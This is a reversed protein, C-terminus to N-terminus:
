LTHFDSSSAEQHHKFFLSDIDTAEEFYVAEALHCHLLAEDFDNFQRLTNFETFSCGHHQQVETAM